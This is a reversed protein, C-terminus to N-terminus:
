HYNVWFLNISASHPGAGAYSLKNNDPYNYYGNYMTIAITGSTNASIWSAGNALLAYATTMTTLMYNALDPLKGGVLPREMIWEAESGNFYTGGLPTTTVM